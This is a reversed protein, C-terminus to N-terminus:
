ELPLAALLEERSNYEKLSDAGQPLRESDFFGLAQGDIVLLAPSWSSEPHLCLDGDVYCGGMLLEFIRQPPDSRYVCEARYVEVGLPAYDYCLSFDTLEWSVPVPVDMEGWYGDFWSDVVARHRAYATQDIEGPAEDCMGRLLQYLDADELYLADADHQRSLEVLNETLGASLCLHWSANPDGEYLELTWTVGSPISAYFDERGDVQHSMAARLLPLVTQPTINPSGDEQEGMAYGWVNLTDEDLRAVRDALTLVADSPTPDIVGLDTVLDIADKQKVDPFDVLPDPSLRFSLSCASLVLLVFSLIAIRLWHKKM